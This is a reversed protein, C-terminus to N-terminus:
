EMNTKNRLYRADDYPLRRDFIAELQGSGTSTFGHSRDVLISFRKEAQEDQIFAYNTVPYMNGEYPLRSVKMRKEVALGTDTFFTAELSDDNFSKERTELDTQFSMFFEGFKTGSHQPKVSNTLYVASLAEPYGQLMIHASITLDKCLVTVEQMVPGAVVYLQAGSENRCNALLNTKSNIHPRLLYAGSGFSTDYKGYTLNVKTTLQEAKRTIGKLLGEKSDFYAAIEDNEMTIYSQQDVSNINYGCNRCQVSASVAVNHNPQTVRKRDEERQIEYTTLALPQLYAVFVLEYYGDFIGSDGNETTGLKPNIFPTEVLIRVLHSKTWGLSNFFVVKKTTETLLFVEFSSTQLIQLAEGYTNHPTSFPSGMKQSAGPLQIKLSLTQAESSYNQQRLHNLTFTFLIEAKRLESQKVVIYPFFDGQFTPLEVHSDKVAKFYRLITGFQVRANYRQPNANIFQFLKDYNNYQQDWELPENFQFDDGVGTIVVNHRTLSATRRYQGMLEDALQLINQSSVPTMYQLHEENENRM